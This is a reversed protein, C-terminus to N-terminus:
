MFPPFAICSLHACRRATPVHSFRSLYLLYYVGPKGLIVQVESNAHEHSHKKFKVEQPGASMGLHTTPRLQPWPRASSIRGWPIGQPQISALSQAVLGRVM